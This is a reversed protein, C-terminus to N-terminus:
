KRNLLPLLPDESITRRPIGEVIRDGEILSSPPLKTPLTSYKSVLLYNKHFPRDKSKRYFVSQPCSRILQSWFGFCAHKLLSFYKFPLKHRQRYQLSAYYKLTLPLFM